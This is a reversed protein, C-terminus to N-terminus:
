HKMGRIIGIRTCSMRVPQRSQPGPHFNEHLINSRLAGNHRHARLSLLFLHPNRSALQRPGRVMGKILAQVLKEHSVIQGPEDFPFALLEKGGRNSTRPESRSQIEAQKYAVVSSALAASRDNTRRSLPCSSNKIPSACCDPITVGVRSSRARTSRFRSFFPDLSSHIFRRTQRLWRRSPLAKGELRGKARM